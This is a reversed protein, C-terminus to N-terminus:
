ACIETRFVIATPMPACRTWADRVPDYKECVSLVERGRRGGIVYILGGLSEATAGGRATPMAAKVTWTNTKTDYEENIATEKGTSDIGGVFYIKGNVSAGTGVARPTPVDKLGVAYGEPLTESQLVILMLLALLIRGVM